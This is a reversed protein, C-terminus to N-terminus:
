KKVFTLLIYPKRPYRVRFAFRFAAGLYNFVHM